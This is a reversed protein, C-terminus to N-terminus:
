PAGGYGPSCFSEEPTRGQKPHQRRQPLRNSLGLGTLGVPTAATPARLVLPRLGLAMFRLAATVEILLDIM